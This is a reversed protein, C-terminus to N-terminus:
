DFKSCHGEACTIDVIDKEYRKIFRKMRGTEASWVKYVEEREEGTTWPAHCDQYYVGDKDQWLDLCYQVESVMDRLNWNDTGESYRTGITKHEYALFMMLDNYREIAKTDM